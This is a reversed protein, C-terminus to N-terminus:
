TNNNRYVIISVLIGGVLGGFHGFNDINKINLGIFINVFIVSLINRLFDKGVLNRIKIGIILCAGLLGFIAGSAGVSISDSFIYSAISSFIGSFFYILLFRGKGYFKEVMEGTAKLAYMNLVLHLIGGHLFMATILRYYEGQAILVNYKAGLAVLVATNMDFISKSLYASVIFFLINILILLNTFNFYKSGGAQKEEHSDKKGEIMEQLLKAFGESGESYKIITNQKIDLIITNYDSSQYIYSIDQEEELLIINNITFTGAKRYLFQKASNVKYLYDETNTFIIAYIGNEFYKMVIWDKKGSSDLVDYEEVLFGYKTILGNIINKMYKERM